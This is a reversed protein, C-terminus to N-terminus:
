KLKKEIREILQIIEVSFELQDIKNSDFSKLGYISGYFMGAICGTTDNDGFHLTSYFILSDMSVDLNNLDLPSENSCHSMMLSDYAVIVSSLGSAGFKSYDYDQSGYKNYTELAKYREEFMSFEQKTNKHKFVKIRRENYEKMKDFFYEKDSIYESYINTTKMYNDIENELKFFEDFWELFSINKMGFNTFLTVVLGGLFGLTYNHTLRSSLISMKILNDYKEDYGLLGIIGSRMAAGNGGLNKNYSIKKLSRNTRLLELSNLTGLGSVRIPDKLIDYVKLYEDIFDSEKGGRLVAVGNAIMMITDDSAKMNSIDIKSFGGLSFFHHIIFMNVVASDKLNTIKSGYNFEWTGNYFGLTDLYSSLIIGGKIKDKISMIICNFFIQM